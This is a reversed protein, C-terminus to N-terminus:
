GGGLSGVPLRGAGTGRRGARRRRQGQRRERGMGGMTRLVRSRPPKRAGAVEIPGVAVEAEGADAVEALVVGADAVEEEAGALEAGTVEAWAL